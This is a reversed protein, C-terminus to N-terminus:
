EPLASAAFLEIRMEGFEAFKPECTTPSAEPPTSNITVFLPLWGRGILPSVSVLVCAPVL